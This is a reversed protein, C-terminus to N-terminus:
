PNEKYQAIITEYAKITALFGPETRSSVTFLLYFDGEELYSVREWNGKDKPIFTLSIASKGDSTTITKAQHITVGPVNTIFDNKDNEILTELSKVNPVRPKYIAKAYMVTEANAFSAGTPALANISYKFSFDKDQSWGSVPALKPWWYFAMGKEGPIAIKEIEAFATTSVLSLSIILAQIYM